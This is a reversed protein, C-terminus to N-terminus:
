LQANRDSRVKKIGDRIGRMVMKHTEIKKQARFLTKLYFLPTTMILFIQKKRRFYKMCVLRNRSRYYMRQPNVKPRLALKKFIYLHTKQYLYEWMKHYKALYLDGFEQNLFVHTFKLIRWSNARARYCYEYDVYDIFLWEDFYGIEQLMEKRFLAGSQICEEVYEVRSTVEKQKSMRIDFSTPCLIGVNSPIPEKFYQEILDSPVISDQDMTLFWSTNAITQRIGENLAAAIGRNNSFHFFTAQSFGLVLQEIELWNTSGNDVVIIRSVQHSLASINELFREIKPQFTVIIVTIENM